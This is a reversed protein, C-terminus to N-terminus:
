RVVENYGYEFAKINLETYKLPFIEKIVDLMYEKDFGLFGCGSAAGILVTNVAKTSGAKEAISIGDIFVASKYIDPLPQNKKLNIICHAGNKLFASNRVAENADFAILLGATGPPILSSKNKSDIRVHSVVSGGRQAMGITEATRVFQGNKMAAAAILRSALVTGQGGVGAIIIDNIINM